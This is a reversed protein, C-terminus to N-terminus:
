IAIINIWVRDRSNLCFAQASPIRVVRYPIGLPSLYPLCIGNLWGLDSGLLKLSYRLAENKEEKTRLWMDRITTSIRTLGNVFRFQTMFYTARLQLLLQEQSLVSQVATDTNSIETAINRSSTEQNEKLTEVIKEKTERSLREIVDEDKVANCFM